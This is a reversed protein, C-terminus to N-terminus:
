RDPGALIVSEVSDQRWGYSPPCVTSRRWYVCLGQRYQDPGETRVHKEGSMDNIEWLGPPQPPKIGKGGQKPNLIGGVTLANDRIM